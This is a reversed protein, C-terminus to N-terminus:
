SAYITFYYHTNINFFLYVRPFLLKSLGDKMPNRMEMHEHWQPAAGGSHIYYRTKPGLNGDAIANSESLGNQLTTPADGGDVDMATNNDNNSNRNSNDSSIISPPLNEGAVVGIWSSFFAAPMDEGAYGAKTWSAGVDL